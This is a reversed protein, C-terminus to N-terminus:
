GQLEAWIIRQGSADLHGASKTEAVPKKELCDTSMPLEAGEGM